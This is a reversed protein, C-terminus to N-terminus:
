EVSREIHVERIKEPLLSLQNAAAVITAAATTATTTTAARARTSPPNCQQQEQHQHAICRTLVSRKLEFVDKIMQYNEVCTNTKEVLVLKNNSQKRNLNKKKKKKLFSQNETM